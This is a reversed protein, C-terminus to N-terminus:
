HSEDPCILRAREGSPLDIVFGASWGCSAECMAPHALRYVTVNRELVPQAGAEILRETEGHVYAMSGFALVMCTAWLWWMPWAWAADVQVWARRTQAGAGPVTATTHTM